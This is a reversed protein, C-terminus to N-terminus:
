KSPRVPFALFSVTTNCACVSNNVFGAVEAGGVVADDSELLDTQFGLIFAHRRSGDALDREELLHAVGVNHAQEVNDVGVAVLQVEDKFVEVQIQLFVHLRQGDRLAATSLRQGLAAHVTASAVHTEALCHDLLEHVLQAGTDAVAVGVANQVAVQLRLIQENVLLAVELEGIETQGSGKTDRQAGVGVLYAIREVVVRRLMDLSVGRLDDGEPVASGFDEETSTM